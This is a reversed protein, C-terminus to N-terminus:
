TSCSQYLTRTASEWEEPPQRQTWACFARRDDQEADGVQSQQRQEIGNEDLRDQVM